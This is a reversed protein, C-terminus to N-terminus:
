NSLDEVVNGDVNGMSVSSDHFFYAARNMGNPGIKGDVMTTATLYSEPAPFCDIQKNIHYEAKFRDNLKFPLYNLSIKYAGAKCWRDIAGKLTIKKEALTPSTHVTIVTTPSVNITPSPPLQVQNSNLLEHATPQNDSKSQGSSVLQWGTILSSTLLGGLLVGAGLWLWKTRALNSSSFDPLNENM